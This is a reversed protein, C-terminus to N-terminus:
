RLLGSLAREIERTRGNERFYRELQPRSRLQERYLRPVAAVITGNRGLLEDGLEIIRLNPWARSRIRLVEM